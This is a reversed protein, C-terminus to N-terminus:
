STKGPSRKVPPKKGSTTQSRTGNGTGRRPTKTAAATNTSTSRLAARNPAEPEGMQGGGSSWYSVALERGGGAWFLCTRGAYSLRQWSVGDDIMEGYADGLLRQYLDREDGDDLTPAKDPSLGAAATLGAALLRQCLLGTPADCSKIRYVKGGIPLPLTDDLLEDLDLFELDAM